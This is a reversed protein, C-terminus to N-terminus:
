FFNYNWFTGEESGGERGGVMGGEKGGDGGECSLHSSVSAMNRKM